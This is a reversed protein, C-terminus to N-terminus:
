NKALPKRAAVIMGACLLENKPLPLIRDDIIWTAKGILQFGKLIIKKFKRFRVKKHDIEDLTVGFSVPVLRNSAIIEFGAAKIHNEIDSLGMVKHIDYVPKNMWKQLTGTIGTLNPITTILIGGPKLFDGIKKIVDVTDNFHEVVGFSCVVDFSNLLAAPPHFLDGFHIDGKVGDRELIKNTQACGYESYDLGSVKFGFQKSFYSLYVSNGCGIEILTQKNTDTNAFLKKYFSHLKRFVYDSLNNSQISVPDPLAANAWFETWYNEGAKDASNMDPKANM